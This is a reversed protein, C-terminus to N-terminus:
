DSVIDVVDLLVIALSVAGTKGGASGSTSSGPTFFSKV